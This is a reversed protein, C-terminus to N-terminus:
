AQKGTAPAHAYTGPSPEQLTLLLLIPGVMLAVAVGDAGLLEATARGIGSAAGTILTKFSPM